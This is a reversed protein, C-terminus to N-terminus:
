WGENAGFFSTKKIINEEGAVVSINFNVENIFQKTEKKGAVVIPLIGVEGASVKVLSNGLVKVNADELIDIQYYATRHTKNRIKFLYSNEVVGVSSIRYLAQRDRIISVEFSSWCYAWIFMLLVSLFVFGGYLSHRRWQNTSPVESTFAILGKPYNFKEMTIDCADICLACNICEYQLGDRIDIGAPCVQVCLKCDICDGLGEEKADTRKRKGRSEGRDSNYTVLKTSKDFMVSQFRAYPCIHLCMKERIWAANVYTCLTFFLVWYFVLSSLEFLFFQRYLQEAEVFYSMFVLATFLSIVVWISHKVLKLGIKKISVFQKDLQKSQHHTGEVRREVWNFLLTWITQPCVFGCWIRGYFKTVYFLAFAALMFILSVIFLDKPFLTFSFLRIQQLQLDFLIAQTGNYDIFPLLIFIFILVCSISRRLYQFRGNQERIYIKNDTNVTKFILSEKSLYSTKV